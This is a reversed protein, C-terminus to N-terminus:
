VPVPELVQDGPHAQALHPRHEAQLDGPKGAGVGVQGPQQLQGAQCGGQDDVVIADIVHAVDVVPEQQAELALHGLSLEV